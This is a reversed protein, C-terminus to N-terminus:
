WDKTSKIQPLKSVGDYFCKNLFPRDCPTYVLRSFGAGTSLVSHIFMGTNESPNRMRSFCRRSLVNYTLSSYGSVVVATAHEMITLDVAAAFHNTTQYKGFTGQVSPLQFLEPKDAFDSKTYVPIRPHSTRLKRFVDMFSSKLTGSCIYIAGCRLRAALPLIRKIFHTELADPTLQASSASLLVADTELRLHVALVRKARLESLVRFAVNQLSLPLRQMAMWYCMDRKGTTKPGFPFRLFFDGHVVFGTNRTSNYMANIKYWAASKQKDDGNCLDRRPLPTIKKMRVPHGYIKEIVLQQENSNSVNRRVIRLPTDQALAKETRDIDFLSYFPLPADVPFLVDRDDYYAYAMLAAYYMMQNTIGFHARIKQGTVLRNKFAPLPSSSSSSGPDLLEVAPHLNIDHFSSPTLEWSALLAEVAPSPYDAVSATTPEAVPSASPIPSPPPPSPSRVTGVIVYTNNNNNSSNNIATTTSPSFRYERTTHSQHFLLFAFAFILLVAVVVVRHCMFSPSSSHINPNAETDLECVDVAETADPQPVSKINAGVSPITADDDGEGQGEQRMM